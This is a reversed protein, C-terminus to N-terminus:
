MPLLGRWLWDILGLDQTVDTFGHLIIHGRCPPCYWPGEHAPNRGEDEGCARHWCQECRDCVLM